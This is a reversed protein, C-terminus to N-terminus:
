FLKHQPSDEKNEILDVEGIDTKYIGIINNFM